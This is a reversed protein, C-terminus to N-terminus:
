NPPGTWGNNVNKDGFNNWPRTNTGINEMHDTFGNLGGDKAYHDMRWASDSSKRTMKFISCPAAANIEQLAMGTASKALGICCAAHTVIIIVRNKGEEDCPYDDSIHKMAEDCRNFFKQCDEPLEPVFATEYHEDLRPFYCKREDMQPLSSHFDQGWLDFEFVSYEPKIKVTNGPNGRTKKIEALLENATQITRLFPSSLLTIQDASIGEEVFLNDLYRGVQRAQEHGLTSLSPDGKRAATKKWEPHQYDWRDGHRIIFVSQVPNSFTQEQQNEAQPSM